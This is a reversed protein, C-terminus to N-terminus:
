RPTPQRTVAVGHHLRHLEDLRKREWREHGDQLASMVYLARAREISGLHVALQVVAEQELGHTRKAAAWLLHRDAVLAVIPKDNTTPRASAASSRRASSSVADPEADFATGLFAALLLRDPHALQRAEQVAPDGADLVRLRELTRWRYGADPDLQFPDNRRRRIATALEPLARDIIGTSHLFRWPGRGAASSSMSCSIAHARIGVRSGRREPLGAFWDMLEFSPVAYRAALAAELALPLALDDPPSPSSDIEGDVM